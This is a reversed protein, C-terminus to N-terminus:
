IDISSYSRGRPDFDYIVSGSTPITSINDRQYNNYRICFYILTFFVYFALSIWRESVSFCTDSLTLFIQLFFSWIILFFLYVQTEFEM